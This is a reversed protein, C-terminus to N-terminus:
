RSALGDPEGPSDADPSARLPSLRGRLVGGARSLRRACREANGRRARCWSFPPSIRPQCTWQVDSSLGVQWGVVVPSSSVGHQVVLCELLQGMLAHPLALAVGTGLAQCQFSTAPLVPPSAPQRQGGPKIAHKTSTLPLRLLSRAGSGIADVRLVGDRTRPRRPGDESAEPARPTDPQLGVGIM